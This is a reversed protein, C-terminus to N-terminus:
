KTNFLYRMMSYLASFLFPLSIVTISLINVTAALVDYLFLGSLLDSFPCIKLSKLPIILQDKLFYNVTIINIVSASSRLMKCVAFFKNRYLFIKAFSLKQDLWQSTKYLSLICIIQSRLDSIGLIIIFNLWISM